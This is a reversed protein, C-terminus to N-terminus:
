VDDHCCWSTMMLVVDEIMRCNICSDVDYNHNVKRQDSSM